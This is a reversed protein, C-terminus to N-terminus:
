LNRQEGMLVVTLTMQVFGISIISLHDTTINYRFVQIVHLLLEVKLNTFTSIQKADSWWPKKSHLVNFQLIPHAINLIGIAMLM